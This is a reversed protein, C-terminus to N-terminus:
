GAHIGGNASYNVVLPRRRSANKSSVMWVNSGFCKEGMFGSSGNGAINKRVCQLKNSENLPFSSSKAMSFSVKFSSPNMTLGFLMFKTGSVQKWSNFGTILAGSVHIQAALSAMQLPHSM